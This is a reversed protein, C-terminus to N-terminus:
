SFINRHCHPFFCCLRLFSVNRLIAQQSLLLGSHVLLLLCFALEKSERQLSQIQGLTLLIIPIMTLLGVLGYLWRHVLFKKAVLNDQEDVFERYSMNNIFPCVAVCLSSPLFNMREDNM